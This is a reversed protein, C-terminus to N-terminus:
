KSRFERVLERLQILGLKGSEGPRGPKGIIPPRTKNNKWRSITASSVTLAKSLAIDDEYAIGL